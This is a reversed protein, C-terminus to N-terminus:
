AQRGADIMERLLARPDEREMLATGVLAVRYGAAAIERADEASALGSEAVCPVTEPLAGALERLREPRVKLTVLDRSNVGVLLGEPGHADVLSRAVRLDAEDFAELLLFLGLERAVAILSDLEARTLLRLILLAGGAGAARAEALQYADVIFDKRMAPLRLADLARAAAVLHFISGEFRTPETLVSVAAAGGAAYATARSPLDDISRAPEGAAPSRLKIEAIVDFRAHLRLPPPPPTALASARLSEYSQQQRAADVRGRSADAMSQLFDASM